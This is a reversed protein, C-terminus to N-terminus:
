LNLCPKIEKLSEVYSSTLRGTLDLSVPSSCNSHPGQGAKNVCSVRFMMSGGLPLDTVNYYCDTIGTAVTVWRSDGASFVVCTLCGYESLAHKMLEGYLLIVCRIVLNLRLFCGTTSIIVM